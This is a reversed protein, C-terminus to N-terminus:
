KGDRIKKLRVHKRIEYENDHNLKKICNSIYKRYETFEKYDKCDSHCGLHRKECDKCPAKNNM